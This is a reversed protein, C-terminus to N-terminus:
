KPLFKIYPTDDINLRPSFGEYSSRLGDDSSYTQIFHGGENLNSFYDMPAVKKGNVIYEVTPESVVWGYEPLFYEVWAHRAYSIDKNQETINKPEELYGFVVRSPIGVARAMAVFLDAYDECIGKSTILANFAGKNGETYDYTLYTNVFEYIKKAKLYPNKEGNIIKQAKDIILFNNSEIKSEPSTYKTYQEFDSYDGSTNELDVNYKIGGNIFTRVANYQMTQGSYIYPIEIIADYKGNSDQTLKMGLGSINLTEEKQYPSNNISGLNLIAIFNSVTNEGDNRLTVVENIEYRKENVLTYIGIQSLIDRLTNNSVAGIGGLVIVESTKAINSNIFSLASNNNIKNVLVIPSLSRSILASGSLADAFDEGSSIYAKDLKMISKFENLVATNTEYRDQGWLRKNAVKSITLSDVVNQTIAGSGGIIYSFGINKDKIYQAVKQPIADRETLLIPMGDYAAISAISLADAFGDGSALAIKLNQSNLSEAVKICTEYRDQGALRTTKIGSLKLDDEINQSIVGVGGIIYVEKASIRKIEERSSDSLNEKGTLLIPANLKKALPAACLADPYNEGSALIVYQSNSWGSNTIAASTEYRTAGWLRKYSLNAEAFVIHTSSEVVILIVSTIIFKVFQKKITMYHAGLRM